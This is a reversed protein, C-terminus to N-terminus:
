AVAVSTLSAWSTGRRSVQFPCSSRSLILFSSRTTSQHPGGSTPGIEKCAGPTPRPHASERADEKPHRRDSSGALASPVARRHVENACGSDRLLPRRRAHVPLRTAHLGGRVRQRVLRLVGRAGLARGRRVAVGLGPGDRGTTRGRHGHLLLHHRGRALSRGLRRGARPLLTRGRLVSLGRHTADVGRQRTWVHTPDEPVRSTAGARTGHLRVRARGACVLLVSGSGMRRVHLGRRLGHGRAHVRHSPM